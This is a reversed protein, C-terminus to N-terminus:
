AHDKNYLSAGIPQLQLPDGARILGLGGYSEDVHIRPPMAAGSSTSVHSAAAAGGASATSNQTLFTHAEAYSMADSHVLLRLGHLTSRTVRFDASILRDFVILYAALQNGLAGRTSLQRVHARHVEWNRQLNGLTAAESAGSAHASAIEVVSDVYRQLSHYTDARTLMFPHDAQTLTSPAKRALLQYLESSVASRAGRPDLEDGLMALMEGANTDLDTVNVADMSAALIADAEEQSLQMRERPAPVSRQEEITAAVRLQHEVLQEMATPLHGGHRQVLQELTQVATCGETIIRALDRWPHFAKLVTYATQEDSLDGTFTPVLDVLVLKELRRRRYAPPTWFFDWSQVYVYQQLHEDETPRHAYMVDEPFCHNISVYQLLAAADLRLVDHQHVQAATPTNRWVHLKGRSPLWCHLAVRTHSLQHWENGLGIYALQVLPTDSGTLMAM